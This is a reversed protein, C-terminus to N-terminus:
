QWANFVVVPLITVLHGWQEAKMCSGMDEIKPLLCNCNLLFITNVVFAEFREAPTDKNDEKNDWMYFKGAKCVINPVIAGTLGHDLLHM